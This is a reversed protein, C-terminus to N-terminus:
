LEVLDVFGGGGGWGCVCVERTDGVGAVRLSERVDWPVDFLPLHQQIFALALPGIGGTNGPAVFCGDRIGVWKGSQLLWVDHQVALQYLELTLMHTLSTSSPTTTTPPQQQQTHHADPQSAAAAPPAQEQLPIRPLAAYLHVGALHGKPVHGTRADDRIRCLVDMWARAVCHLLEKNFRARMADLTEPPPPGTSTPVTSPPGAPTSSPGSPPAQLVMARTPDTAFHGAVLFPLTHLGGGHQGDHQSDITLPMPGYVGGTLGHTQTYTSFM